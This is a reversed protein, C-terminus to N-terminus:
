PDQRPADPRSSGKRLANLLKTNTESVFKVEAEIMAATFRDSQAAGPLKAWVGMATSYAWTLNAVYRLMAENDAQRNQLRRGEERAQDLTSYLFTINRVMTLDHLEGLRGVNGDYVARPVYFDYDPLRSNKEWAYVAHHYPRGVAHLIAEIEGAFATQLSTKTTAEQYQLVLLSSGTGFAAGVLAAVVISALSHAIKSM